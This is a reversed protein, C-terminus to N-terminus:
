KNLYKNARRDEKLAMQCYQNVYWCDPYYTKLYEKQKDSITVEKIKDM